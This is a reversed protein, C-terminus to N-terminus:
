GAPNKLPEMCYSAFARSMSPVLEQSLYLYLEEGRTDRLKEAEVMRIAMTKQVIVDRDNQDRHRAGIDLLQRMKELANDLVKRPTDFIGFHGLYLRSLPLDRLRTISEMALKVDSRYPTFIFSADADPFYAGVLDNVFLGMNKEEVIVIGSPQHGPTIMVKLREGNGLDFTDGERLYRIRSKPVPVMEGFRAAMQASLNARRKAAEVDPNTLYEAGLPAVYVRARSNEKLLAGVNGSHDPHEAHTVFIHSIDEIAFGHERIGARLVELSTPAGTDILAIEDGAVIYSSQFLDFGFMQTDIMYVNDARKAYEYTM